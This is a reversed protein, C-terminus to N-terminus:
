PVGPARCYVKLEVEHDVGGAEVNFRVVRPGTNAPDARRPDWTVTLTRVPLANGSDGAVTVDPPCSTVRPIILKGQTSRCVCTATYLPGGESQRPLFLTQPSLEVPTVITCTVPVVTPFPRGALFVEVREDVAGAARTDVAVELRAVGKGRTDGPPGPPIMRVRVRSPNSSTVRDIPRPPSAQDTLDIARRVESGVAVAGCVVSRPSPEVGGTVRPIVLRVSREPSAPDNTRFFVPTVIDIGVPGHVGRRIALNATGGPPVRVEDVRFLQGDRERELGTCSCGTRVEDIVLERGGRNMVVFRGTATSYIEHEGADVEEPCDIVPDASVPHAATERAVRGLHPSVVWGLLGFMGAATLFFSARRM